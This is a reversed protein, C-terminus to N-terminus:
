TAHIIQIKCKESRRNAGASIIRKHLRLFKAIKASQSKGPQFTACIDLGRGSIKVTIM